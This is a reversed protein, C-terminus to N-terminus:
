VPAVLSYGLGRVTVIGVSSCALKRRLYGVYVDVVKFSRRRGPWVAALLQQRSFLSDQHELLFRLLRHETASLEVRRGAVVVDHEDIRMEVDGCRLLNPAWTQTYRRVLTQVRARLERVDFPYSVFDDAGSNLGQVRTSAPDPGVLVVPGNVGQDRLRQCLEIGDLDPLASAAVLVGVRREAVVTLAAAASAVRHMRYGDPGLASFVSSATHDNAVAVLALTGLAERRNVTEPSAPVSILSTPPAIICHMLGAQCVGSVPM